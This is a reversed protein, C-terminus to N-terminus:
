PLSSEEVCSSDIHVECKWNGLCETCLESTYSCLLSLPRNDQEVVTRLALGLCQFQIQNTM